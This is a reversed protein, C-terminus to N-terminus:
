VKTADPHVPPEKRLLKQLGGQKWVLFPMLTGIGAAVIVIYFPMRIDVSMLDGGLLSVLGAILTFVAIIIGMVLGQERALSVASPM